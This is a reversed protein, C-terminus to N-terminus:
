FMIKIHSVFINELRDRNLIPQTMGVRQQSCQQNSRFEPFQRNLFRCNWGATSLAADRRQGGPGHNLQGWHLDAVTHLGGFIMFTLM